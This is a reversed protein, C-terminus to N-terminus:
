ARQKMLEAIKQDRERVMRRLAANEITLAVIPNSQMAEQFDENTLELVMQRSAVQHHNDM